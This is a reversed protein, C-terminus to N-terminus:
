MHHAKPVLSDTLDRSRCTFQTAKGSKGRLIFYEPTFNGVALLNEMVHLSVYWHVERVVKLTECAGFGGM